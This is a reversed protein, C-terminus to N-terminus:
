ESILKKKIKKKLVIFIKDDPNINLARNILNLAIIPENLEYFKEALIKCKYDDLNKINAAKKFQKMAEKPDNRELSILGLNIRASSYRPYLRVIREFVAKAEGIKGVKKLCLGM